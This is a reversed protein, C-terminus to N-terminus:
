TFPCRLEKDAFYAFQSLPKGSPMGRSGVLPWLRYVVAEEETDDTDRVVWLWGGGDVAGKTVM